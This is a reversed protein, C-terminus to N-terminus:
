TANSGGVSVFVPGAIVSGYTDGGIEFLDVGFGGWRIHPGV